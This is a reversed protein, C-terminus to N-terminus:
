IDMLKTVSYVSVSASIIYMILSSLMDAFNTVNCM